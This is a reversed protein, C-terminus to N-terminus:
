KTVEQLARDLQPDQQNQIQDATREVKIDPELGTKNINAGKPTLWKAVTVKVATGEPLQVLEQVSGKGFSKEGILKAFGYDRLAGALIESASASGANILVQTPIDKLLAKGSATYKETTGDSHEESVVVDGFNVWYSALEVATNLYGGPDDRLDLVIGSVKQSLADNVAKSFLQSTDDGFEQVEILAIKKGNVDKYSSKVSPVQITDRTITFEKETNTSKRFINLKVKTGKKGRIKTVAADVTLDTADQDDIKLLVDGALLGAKQAPSSDLPAVIIIRGDKLGVEAGIGEFSGGLQTKFDQYQKPDFFSTYPDGVANVMGTVAGYMLKQQDVPKDIYKKNITELAQWLLSYNVEKPYNNQNVLRFEKPTFAYGQSGMNLGGFFSGVSLALLVIITSIYKKTSIM